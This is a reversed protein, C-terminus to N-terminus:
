IRLRWAQPVICPRGSRGAVRRSLVAGIECKVRAADFRGAAILDVVKGAEVLTSPLYDVWISTEALDDDVERM